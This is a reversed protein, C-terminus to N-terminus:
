FRFLETALKMAAAFMTGIAAVFASRVFKDLPRAANEIQAIQSDSFSLV